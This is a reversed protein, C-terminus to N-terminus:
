NDKPSLDSSNPPWFDKSLFEQGLKRGALEAFPQQHVTRNFFPKGDAVGIMKPIVVNKLVDM